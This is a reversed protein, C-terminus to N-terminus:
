DASIADDVKGDASLGVHARGNARRLRVSAVACAIMAVDTVLCFLGLTDEPEGFWPELYGSPLGGTRSAVFLAAEAAATAALLLWGVAAGRSSLLLLLAALLAANGVCFLVGIYPMEELHMPTLWVHLGINITVAARAVVGPWPTSTQTFM